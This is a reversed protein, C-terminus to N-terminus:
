WRRSIVAYILTLISGTFIGLSDARLDNIDASRYDTLGQIIETAAGIAIGIVIIALMFMLFSAPRGDAKRFAFYALVPYPMFMLFHVVKDKPLGLWTSGFDIGSDMKIFCLICVATLYLALLIRSIIKKKEM